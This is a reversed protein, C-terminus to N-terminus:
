YKSPLKEYTNPLNLLELTKNWIDLCLKPNQAHKYPPILECDQFHGGTHKEIGQAIATHITTQAGEEASKFYTEKFTDVIWKRWGRMVRFIDTKIVGPHLSFVYVQDDELLQALKITFLIICLKSNNYTYYTGQYKTLNEATLKAHDALRSSVNIIRSPASKKLLDLLLLTLLFPGFYNVQMGLQLGDETLKSKTSAMGANNVLIDVREESKLIENAFNRVSSLKSLDLQKVAVNKNLTLRIIRNRAEIAKVENRCALIVRAGRKAFELAAEYGIGTNAGTVIVTKGVLCVKSECWGTTLKLYVKLLVLFGAISGLIHFAGM